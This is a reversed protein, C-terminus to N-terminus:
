LSLLVCFRVLETVQLEVFVATAVIVLPPSAVPTAVPLVVIEAAEPLV